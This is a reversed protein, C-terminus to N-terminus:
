CFCVCVCVCVNYLVYGMMDNSNDNDNDTSTLKGDWGGLLKVVRVVKVGWFSRLSNTGSPDGM